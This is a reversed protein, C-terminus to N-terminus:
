VEPNASTKVASKFPTTKSIQEVVLMALVPVQESVKSLEESVNKNAAERAKSIKASASERAKTLINSVEKNAEAKSKAYLASAERQAGKLSNSLNEELEESEKTLNKSQELRGFIRKDREVILNSLPKLAVVSMFFFFVAVVGFMLFFTENVGLSTLIGLAQDM